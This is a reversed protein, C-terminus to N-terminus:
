DEVIDYGNKNAWDVAHKYIYENKLHTTNQTVLNIDSNSITRDEAIACNKLFMGLKVDFKVKWCLVLVKLQILKLLDRM